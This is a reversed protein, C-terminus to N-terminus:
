LDLLAISWTTPISDKLLASAEFWELFPLKNVPAATELQDFWVTM